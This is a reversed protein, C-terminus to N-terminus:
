SGDTKEEPEPPSQLDAPLVQPTSRPPATELL